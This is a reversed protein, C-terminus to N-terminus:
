KPRPRLNPILPALAMGIVVGAVHLSWAFQGDMAIYTWINVAIVFGLWLAAPWLRHAIEWRDTWAGARDQVAWVVWLGALGHVAGSAGAMPAFYNGANLIGKATLYMAGLYGFAALVMLLHYLLLLGIVGVRRATLWGLLLFPLMNFAIHGWSGHLYGHKLLRSAHEWPFASGQLWNIWASSHLLMRLGFASNPDVLWAFRDPSKLIAFIGANAAVILAIVCYTFPITPRYPFPTM